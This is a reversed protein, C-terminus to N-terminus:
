ESTDHQKIKISTIYKIKKQSIRYQKNLTNILPLEIDKFKDPYENLILVEIGKEKQTQLFNVATDLLTHIHKQPIIYIKQYKNAVPFAVTCLDYVSTDVIICNQIDPDIAFFNKYKKYKDNYDSNIGIIIILLPFTYSLIKFFINKNAIKFLIHATIITFLPYLPAIYRFEVYAAVKSITMLSCIAVCVILSLNYSQPSLYFSIPFTFRPPTITLSLGYQNKQITTTKSAIYFICLLFIIISLVSCFLHKNLVEYFLHLRELFSTATFNQFAEVGRFGLFIHLFIAPYCIFALLLSTISTITYKKILDYQSELYFFGVICLYIFTYTIIYYYHTLLGITNIIFLFPFYKNNTNNLIKINIYISITLISSLMTYMRIFEVTSIAGLSFGYLICPALSKYKSNFICNATLFIFIQTCLFFAINPTIGFWKSFQYPFLSSITHIIFYYLPPHVDQTQNTYVQKYNFKTDPSTVLLNYYDTGSRWRNKYENPVHIGYKSNSLTFTFTEDVHFYEKEYGKAVMLITQLLLIFVFLFNPNIKNIKIKM